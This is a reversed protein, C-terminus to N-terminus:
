GIEIAVGFFIFATLDKKTALAAMRRVEEASEQDRLFGGPYMM